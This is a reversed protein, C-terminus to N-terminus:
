LETAPGWEMDDADDFDDESSDSGQIQTRRFQVAQHHHALVIFQPPKKDEDQAQTEASRARELLDEIASLSAHQSREPQEEAYSPEDVPHQRIPDPARFDPPGDSPTAPPAVDLASFDSDTFSRHSPDEEEGDSQPPSYYEQRPSKPEPVHMLPPVERPAYADDNEEPEDEPGTAPESSRALAAGAVRSGGPTRAPDQGRYSEELDENDTYADDTFGEGDTDELDSAASLYDTQTQDLADLDQEGGSELTVESVWVPKTQEHRIKNKLSEYWSHSSPDLDVRASFLHSCHKRMKVAQSYLRRSSKNSNPSYRQRMTKVDKRSHPDLFLVMPHYQIYNLREVATPTIDLLPHKDKEAIKRVTDLKIVTSGGDGGGSRPVMEAVEYDDPMERALKEMAIDNLPGLIVIPRRFNAERLLVREYAPFKGQITLQMLDERSRRMNKENKKNGRLGRLKWFEARPGSVQREGSARQAQEMKALNEARAQNPITGKDMEHLDNGMRIALWQGLKGRHMTDVVRFVEGRTFGLGIPGESDHDFHTRIYFNDGLSSKIIKKYLDMKNQTCIEVQQGTKLDLLFNAAEERTFHGFDVKNVQMIQDGEKMGQEYAPSHPQVGGVFIGVDNGGVLRLGLSREKVFSVRKVDSSYGPTSPYSDPPLFYLPEEEPKSYVPPNNKVSIGSRVTSTGNAARPANRHSDGRESSGSRRLHSLEDSESSDDPPPRTPSPARRLPKVSVSTSKGPPVRYRNRASDSNRSGTSDRRPVSAYSAESESGSNAKQPPNSAASWKPPEVESQLSVEPLVRYRSLSDQSYTTSRRQPPESFGDSESDSDPPPVRVPSNVKRPPDQRVVIPSSVRGSYRDPLVKYRSDLRPGDRQPPPSAERDSDSESVPRRPRSATSSPPGPATWNHAVPSARPNPLTSVGSLSKYKSTQDRIDLSDKEREGRVPPRPPSASHDSDSESPAQRSAYTRAPPRTLTSRVPSQDRSKPLQPEAKTRRTRREKAAPRSARHPPLGEDIDSIDEMESSSDKRRDYDSNQPSDEVEPITVLFKRDDRLVTMTLKGRSKEVLHKTELLSLNETTMGNIKLILDGEQLTGERAALGTETMHKIFIQSGLKLGYEDTTKKKVLTTRIPKAAVDNNPLRKYGSSMLPVTNGYGNREPSPSRRRYRDNSRYRDDNDRYRYRNTDTNDSGDSHRRTRRPPDQDLLNSQSAARTPRASTSVPIQIKRPRKVTINATKGCSKLTQITYNSHVNDMPVGNVMVIQDKTFLRGMAPGNPLVDSVMVSTDGDPQPKDKGGSIAFGFGFKSDKNLTITHQEWITLEEM